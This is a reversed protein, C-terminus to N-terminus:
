VRVLHEKFLELAERVAPPKAHEIAQLATALRADDLKSPHPLIYSVHNIQEDIQSKLEQDETLRRLRQLSTILQAKSVRSESGEEAGKAAILLTIVLISALVFLFIQLALQSKFGVVEFLYFLLTVVSAASYVLTVIVIAPLSAFPDGPAGGRRSARKDYVVASILWNITVLFILWGVSGWYKVSGGAPSYLASVALIGSLMVVLKLGLLGRM